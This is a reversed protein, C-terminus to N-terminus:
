LRRFVPITALYCLAALFVLLRFGLHVATLTALTAGTVSLCGNVAWAWPILRPVDNSVRQLGLPFPIGMLFALPALLFLGFIIRAADPWGMGFNFMIRSGFVLLVGIVVLVIVALPHIVRDRQQAKDAALSGLGSFFLFSTLVVAVAYVPYHLFLMLKQIFAIELFMFGLGLLGFYVVVPLRKGRTEGATRGSFVIVPLLILLFSALVGQLVTAILALYGWEVFPIWQQGMGRVLRPISEWKFFRFFYPRDDTAPRIHYLFDAYFQRRNGFLISQAADYYVPQRLITYRNAEAESIGPYYCLDFNRERAFDKGRKIQAETLPKKSLVMTATNWSRIWFIHRAPNEIGAREAGEVLTAFMKVADRPPTKLWRTISIMGKRSLRRYYTALAETTYLYSESLAHVGASSSNFSDILAIQILDFAAPADGELWGRGDAVVPRVDDRSYLYGSFDGFQKDVMPFVNPDIEAAVVQPAKNRLAMLVDTGGGSGIVFTKPEELMQYPLAATVYDLYAVTSFDGNFKNIISGAGADFYLGIQEPLRGLEDMPYNSIQGPTERLYRSKVATLESVPSHARAVMEADPLDLAYSMGKYQSVRPSQVSSVIVLLVILGSGAAVATKSMGSKVASLLFGSLSALGIVGVLQHPAALYMCLTISLAGLGSGCMNLFYVKGIQRPRLMFATTICVSVLFFPITLIGYLLFLYVWQSHDTVIQYTEFPVLQSGMYCAPIAAGTLWISWRFVTAARSRVWSSFLSIFTGAAGFGLMAVSIIMYAFHYWQAIAFVRMFVLEYAIGSASVIVLAPTLYQVRASKQNQSKPM